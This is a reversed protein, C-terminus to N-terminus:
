AEEIKRARAERKGRNEKAEHNCYNCDKEPCRFSKAHKLTHKNDKDTKSM